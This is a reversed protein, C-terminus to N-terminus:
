LAKSTYHGYGPLKTPQQQVQLLNQADEQGRNLKFSMGESTYHDNGPLKTHQQKAGKIWYISKFVECIV